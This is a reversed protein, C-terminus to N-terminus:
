GNRLVFLIVCVIVTLIACAAAILFAMLVPMVLPHQQLLKIMGRVQPQFILRMERIPLKPSIRIKVYRGHSMITHPALSPLLLNDVLVVQGRKWSHSLSFPTFSLIMGLFSTHAVSLAEALKSSQHEPFFSNVLQLVKQGESTYLIVRFDVAKAGVNTLWSEAAGAGEKYVALSRSVQKRISDRFGYPNYDFELLLQAPFGRLNSWHQDRPTHRPFGVLTWLMNFLPSIVPAIFLRHFLGSEVAAPALLGSINYRLDIFGLVAEPPTASQFRVADEDFSHGSLDQYKQLVAPPNRMEYVPYQTPKTTASLIFPDYDLPIPFYLLKPPVYFVRIQWLILLTAAFTVWFVLGATAITVASFALGKEIWRNPQPDQQTKRRRLGDRSTKSSM